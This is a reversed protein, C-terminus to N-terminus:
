EDPFEETDPEPEPMEPENLFSWTARKTGDEGEETIICLCRGQAYMGEFIVQAMDPPLDCFRMCGIEDCRQNLKNTLM